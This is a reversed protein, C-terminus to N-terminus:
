VRHAWITMGATASGTRVFTPGPMWGFCVWGPNGICLTPVRFEKNSFQGCIAVRIDKKFTSSVLFKGLILSSNIFAFIRLVDMIDTMM